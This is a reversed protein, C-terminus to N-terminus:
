ETAAQTGLDIEVVDGIVNRTTDIIWQYPDDLGALLENSAALEPTYDRLMYVADGTGEWHEILPHWVLNELKIGTPYYAQEAVDEGAGEGEAADTAAADTAAADDEGEEASAPSTPEVKVIDCSFMGSMICEPNDHYGSVLDGMGHVVLMKGGDARDLWEIPQIWHVHSGIVLDVNLEACKYSWTVQDPSPTNTYEIGTHLYVVVADAVERARAVDAEVRDEDWWTSYYYNPLDSLEYGNQGYSYSLFAIRVGNCEVVRPTQYDEETAYSGIVAINPYQSEFMEQQHRIADVWIDYVHNSNSNMVRWGTDSIAEAMSDPTNYSPYGSYDFYDNGGMITEQNVFSIDYSDQIYPKIHEYIPHFDYTASGDAAAPSWAAVLELLNANILNDGVASFSVRGPGTATTRGEDYLRYAPKADADETAAAAPILQMSRVDPNLTVEEETPQGQEGASSCSRVCGAILTVSGIILMLALVGAIGPILWSPLADIIEGFPSTRRRTAARRSQAAQAADRQQPRTTAVTVRRRQGQQQPRASQQARAQQKPRAAQQSRAQQRAQPQQARAQQAGAQQKPRAQQQARAQQQRAPQAGTTQQTRRAPQPNGGSDAPRGDREAM